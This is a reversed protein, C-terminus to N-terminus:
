NGYASNMRKRLDKDSLAESTGEKHKILAERLNAITDWDNDQQIKMLETGTLNDMVEQVLVQQETMPTAIDDISGKLFQTLEAISM